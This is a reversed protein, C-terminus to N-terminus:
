IVEVPAPLPAEVYFKHDAVYWFQGNLLIKDVFCGLYPRCELFSSNLKPATEQSNGFFRACTYDSYEDLFKGHVENVRSRYQWAAPAHGFDRGTSDGYLSTRSLAQKPIISEFDQALVPVPFQSVYVQTTQICLPDYQVQPIVSYLSFVSGWEEAFDTFTDGDIKGSGTAIRSGFTGSGSEGISGATSIHQSMQIQATSGGLFHPRNLRLDSIDVGYQGKIIDRYEDTGFYHGRKLFRELMHARKLSFLDFSSDGSIRPSYNLSRLSRNLISPIPLFSSVNEGKENQYSIEQVTLLRDGTVFDNAEIDSDFGFGLQGTDQNLLPVYVRRMIDDMQASTFMDESWPCVRTLLLQYCWLHNAPIAFSSPLLDTNGWKHYDLVDNIKQIQVNRYFSIWISQYKRLSMDSYLPLTSAYIGYFFLSALLENTGTGTYKCAIDFNEHSVYPYGLSELLSGQGIWFDIYTRLVNKAIILKDNDSLASSYGSCLSNLQEKLDSLSGDAFIIETEFQWVFELLDGIPDSNNFIDDLVSYSKNRIANFLTNAVSDGSSPTIVGILGLLYIPNFAGITIDKNFYNGPNATMIDRFDKNVAFDPVYFNHVRQIMDPIIPTSVQELTPSITNSGRFKTGPMVHQYSAVHLRGLVGHNKSQYSLDFASKPLGADQVESQQTYNRSVVKQYNDNFM